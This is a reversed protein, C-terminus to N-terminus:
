PRLRDLILYIINTLTMVSRINAVMTELISPFIVYILEIASRICREFIHEKGKLYFPYSQNGM